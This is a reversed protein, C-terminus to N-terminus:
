KSKILIMLDNLVNRLYNLCNQSKVIYSYIGLDQLQAITSVDSQSSIVIVKCHPNVKLVETVIEIGNADPLYFDCILIDPKDNLNQLLQSGSDFQSIKLLDNNSIALRLLLGETPNDELLFTKIMM